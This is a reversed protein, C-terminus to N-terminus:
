LELLREELKDILAALYVARNTYPDDLMESECISLLVTIDQEDLADWSATSHMAKSLTADTRRTRRFIRM